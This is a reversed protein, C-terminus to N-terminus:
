WFNKLKADLFIKKSVQQNCRWPMTNTILWFERKGLMIRYNKVTKTNHQHLIKVM